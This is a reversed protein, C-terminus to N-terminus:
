DSDNGEDATGNESDNFNNRLSIKLILLDEYNESLQSEKLEDINDIIGTANAKTLICRNRANNRDQCDKKLEKTNHLNNELNETDLAANAYEGMFKNMFAKEEDSLKDIYDMDYLEYRTKLQLQPKLNPYKERGRKTKKKSM